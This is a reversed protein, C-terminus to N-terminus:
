GGRSFLRCRKGYTHRKFGGWGDPHGCYGGTPTRWKQYLCAGCCHQEILRALPDATM